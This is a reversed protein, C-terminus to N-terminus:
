KSIPKFFLKDQNVAKENILLISPYFKYKSVDKEAPDSISISDPNLIYSKENIVLTLVREKIIFNNLEGM